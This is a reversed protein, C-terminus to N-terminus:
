VAIMVFAICRKVAYPLKMAFYLLSTPIDNILGRFCRVDISATM